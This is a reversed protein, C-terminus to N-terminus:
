AGGEGGDLLRQPDLVALLRDGLRAIRVIDSAFGDAPHVAALPVDVLEAVASDLALACWGTATELVAAAAPGEPCIGDFSLLPLIDGRSVLLGVLRGRGKALAPLRTPMADELIEVVQSVSVARTEGGANLLLLRETAAAARAAAAAQSLASLGGDRVAALAALRAPAILKEPALGLVVDGTATVFRRVVAVHDGPAPPSDSAYRRLGALGEALIAIQAGGAKVVVAERRRTVSSVGGLAIGPDLAPLARGRLVVVGPLLPDALPVPVFDPKEIIEGVLDPDFALAMGAARLEIRPALGKQARVQRVAGSELRQAWGPLDSAVSQPRFGAAFAAALDLFLLPRGQWDSRALIPGTPELTGAAVAAQWAATLPQLKLSREIRLASQGDALRLVTHGQRFYRPADPFLLRAGDILLYVGGATAILGEIDPPAFPIPAVSPPEISGGAQSHPIAALCGALEVLLWLSRELDPQGRVPALMSSM